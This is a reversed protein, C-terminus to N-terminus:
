EGFLFRALREGSDQIRLRHYYCGVRTCAQAVGGNPLKLNAMPADCHVCQDGNATLSVKCHPCHLSVVSGVVFGAGGQVEHNGYWPNLFITEEIAGQRALIAIAAHGGLKVSPDLLSHGNPCTAVSVLFSEPPVEIIVREM